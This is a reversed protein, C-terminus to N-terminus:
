MRSRSNSSNNAAHCMDIAILILVHQQHLEQRFSGKFFLREVDEM